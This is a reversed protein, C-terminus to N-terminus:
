SPYGDIPQAVQVLRTALGSEMIRAFPCAHSRRSGDFEDYLDPHADIHLITLEQHVGAVARIIPYTISHDGGLALVNERALLSEAFDPKVVCAAKFLSAPASTRPLARVLRSHSVHRLHGTALPSAGLSAPDANRVIVCHKM